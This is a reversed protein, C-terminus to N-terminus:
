EEAMPRMDKAEVVLRGPMGTPQVVYTNNPRVEEVTGYWSVWTVYVRQGVEYRLIPFDPMVANSKAAQAIKSMEEKVTDLVAKHIAEVAAENAAALIRDFAENDIESLDVHGDCIYCLDESDIVTM